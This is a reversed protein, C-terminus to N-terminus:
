WLTGDEDAIGNSVHQAHIEAFRQDGRRVCDMVLGYAHRSGPNKAWALYDVDSKAWLSQGVTRRIQQMREQEKPTPTYALKKPQDNSALRQMCARCIALFEPLNPPTPRGDCETLALGFVEPRDRFGALRDAWLARVKAPDTGSWLDAFKSGYLAALHDFIREIWRDPLPQRDSVARSGTSTTTQMETSTM